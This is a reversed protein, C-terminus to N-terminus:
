HTASDREQREELELLYEAAYKAKMAKDLEHAIEARQKLTTAKEFERAFAEGQLRFVEIQAKLTTIKLARIIPEVTM